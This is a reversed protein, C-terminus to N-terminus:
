AGIEKLVRCLYKDKRLRSLLERRGHQLRKKATEQSCDMLEAAEKTTYGYAISLVLAIRKKPRIASLHVSLQELLRQGELRREPNHIESASTGDTKDSLSLLADLPRRRYFQRISNITVKDLWALFGAKGRFSELGAFVRAMATQILDDTDQGKGSMMIVTRRVRPLCARALDERASRDGALCQTLLDSDSLVCRYDKEPISQIM